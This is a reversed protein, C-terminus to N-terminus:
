APQELCNSKTHVLSMLNAEAESLGFQHMLQDKDIGLDLLKNAQTLNTDLTKNAKIEDQKQSTKDLQREALRLRKVLGSINRALCDSENRNNAKLELLQLQLNRVRSLLYVSVISVNIALLFYFLSQDIYNTFM